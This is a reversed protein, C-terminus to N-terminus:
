IKFSISFTSVPRLSMDVKDAMIEFATAECKSTSLVYKRQWTKNFTLTIKASTILLIYIHRYSNGKSQLPSISNKSHM